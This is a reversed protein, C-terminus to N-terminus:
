AGRFDSFLIMVPLYFRGILYLIVCFVVLDDSDLVIYMSITV